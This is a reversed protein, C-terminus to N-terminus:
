SNKLKNHDVCDWNLTFVYLCPYKYGHFLLQIFDMLWIGLPRFPTNPSGQHSLHYLIWRCHLLGPNPRQTPFIGQLLAHCGVGTNKGPSNGHFFFGPTSCDISKCLTSCSQTALCLVADHSFTFCLLNLCSMSLTIFLWFNTDWTCFHIVCTWFFLAWHFIALCKSVTRIM